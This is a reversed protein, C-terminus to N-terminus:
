GPYVGLLAAFVASDLDTIRAHISGGSAPKVWITVGNDTVEVDADGGYASRLLAALEDESAPSM